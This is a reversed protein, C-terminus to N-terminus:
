IETRGFARPIHKILNSGLVAIQYFPRRFFIGVKLNIYVSEAIMRLRNTRTYSLGGVRFRAVTLQLKAGHGKLFERLLIENDSSIKCRDDFRFGDSFLTARHFAGQHSPLTPRGAVWPGDLGQWTEDRLRLEQGTYQDVEMVSGYAVSVNQAMSSLLTSVEGLTANGYLEDGAGLFLVWDGTIVPLAKNWASYIGSDPESILVSILDGLSRAVAVTDDTSAGDVIIWEFNRYSQARLSRGTVALSQGANFTSTIVSFKM